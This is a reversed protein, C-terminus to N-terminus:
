KNVLAGLLMQWMNIYKKYGVAYYKWVTNLNLIFSTIPFISSSNQTSAHVDMTQLTGISSVM